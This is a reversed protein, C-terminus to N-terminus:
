GCDGGLVEGQGERDQIMRKWQGLVGIDQPKQDGNGGFKAGLNKEFLRWFGLIHINLDPTLDV